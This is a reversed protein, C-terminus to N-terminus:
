IESIKESLRILLRKVHGFIAYADDVNYDARTHMVHNRWADRIARIDQLIPYYYEQFSQKESGRKIKNAKADVLPQLQNLMTEWDVHSIPTYKKLGSKKVSKAKKLGFSACLARLGWEVARMIHFVSATACDAALCNGAERIDPAASPFANGVAEGMLANQDVMDEFRPHVMLFKHSYLDFWVSERVVRLETSVADVTLSGTMPKESLHQEALLIKGVSQAFGQESCLARLKALDQIMSDIGSQPVECNRGEYLGRGFTASEMLQVQYLSHLIDWCKFHNMIDWLSWVRRTIM